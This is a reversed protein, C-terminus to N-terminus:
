WVLVFDGHDEPNVYVPLVLGPELRAAAFVSMVERRKARRPEMGPVDLDVVIKMLPMENVTTNSSAKVVTAIGRIGNRFVWDQHEAKGKQHRAFIYLGLAVLAWIAGLGKLIGGAEGTFPAFVLALGILGFFAILAFGLRNIQMAV